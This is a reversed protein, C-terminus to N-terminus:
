YGTGVSGTGQRRLLLTKGNRRILTDTSQGTMKMTKGAVDLTSSFDVTATKKDPSISVSNISFNSDLQVMGGMAKGMMQFSDYLKVYGECAEAKNSSDTHIQGGLSVTENSTFDDALLNCLKEPKRELTASQFNRYFENVHNESLKRSASFHWWGGVAAILILLILKKM